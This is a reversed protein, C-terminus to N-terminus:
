TPATACSVRRYAAVVTNRTFADDRMALLETAPIARRQGIAKDFVRIFADTGAACNGARLSDERTVVLSKIHAQIERFATGRLAEAAASRARSARKRAQELTGGAVHHGRVIWGEVVKLEFGRAQEAWTARYERPGVRECDLTVLGGVVVHVKFEALCRRTLVLHAFSNTGSWKGNHSWARESWGRADPKDSVEVKVSHEGGAWGSQSQRYPWNRQLRARVKRAWRQHLHTLARSYVDATQCRCANELAALPAPLTDAQAALQCARLDARSAHSNWISDDRRRHTPYFHGSGIRALGAVPPPLRAALFRLAGRFSGAKSGSANARQIAQAKRTSADM